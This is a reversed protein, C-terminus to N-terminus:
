RPRGIEPSELGCSGFGAAWSTRGYQAGMRPRRSDAARREVWGGVFRGCGPRRAWGHKRGGVWYDSLFENLLDCLKVAIRYTAPMGFRDVIGVGAQEVGDAFLVLEVVQEPVFFVDGATGVNAILADRLDLAGDIAVVLLAVVGDFADVFRNEFQELRVADKGLGARAEVGFGGAGRDVAERDHSKADVMEFFLGLAGVGVGSVQLLDGLAEGAAAHLAGVEGPREGFEQFVKLGAALLELDVALHFHVVIRCEVRVQIALADGGSDM